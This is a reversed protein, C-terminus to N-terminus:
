EELKRRLDDIVEVEKNTTYIKRLNELENSFVKCVLDAIEEESMEYYDLRSRYFARIAEIIKHKM